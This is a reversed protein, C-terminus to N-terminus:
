FCATQLVSCHLAVHVDKSSFQLPLGLSAMLLSPSTLLFPQNPHILLFAFFHEPTMHDGIACPFGCSFPYVMSHSGVMSSPFPLYDLPPQLFLVCPHRVPSIITFRCVTLSPAQNCSQSVYKPVQSWIIVPAVPCMQWLLM